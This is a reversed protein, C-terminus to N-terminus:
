HHHPQSNYDNHVIRLEMSHAIHRAVMKAREAGSGAFGEDVSQIFFSLWREFDASTLAQKSHLARHINMTHRQYDNHGLLLKEWYRQIHGLHVRLDIKAVDLFLPALQPDDLLKGYFCQLFQQIHVPSDLDPKTM